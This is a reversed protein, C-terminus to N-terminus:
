PKTQLEPLWHTGPPAPVLSAPSAPAAPAVLVGSPPTLSALVSALLSALVSALMSPPPVVLTLSAPVPEFLEFSEPPQPQRTAPACPEARSVPAHSLMSATPANTNVRRRRAAFRATAARQREARHGGVLSRGLPARTM